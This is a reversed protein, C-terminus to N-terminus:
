RNPPRVPPAVLTDPDVLGHVRSTWGLRSMSSADPDIPHGTAGALWGERFLREIRRWGSPKDVPRELYRRLLTEAPYHGATALLWEVTDESVMKVWPDPLRTPTAAPDTFLAVVPLIQNAVGTRFADLSVSAFSQPLGSLEVHSLSPEVNIFLTSYALGDSPLRKTVTADPNATRWAALRDDLVTVRPSVWTAVGTQNWRSPQLQIQHVQAGNRLEMARRSKVWRFGLDDALAQGAEHLIASPAADPNSVAPPVPPMKCPNM